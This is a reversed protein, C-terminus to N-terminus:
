SLLRAGAWDSHDYDITGPITSKVILTLTQVGVVSINVHGAASTGTVTGSDYLLAGDGFIQFDVSGNGNVEDDIGVDSIFTTYKGALSYTITSDAHTGIGKAYATGRLTIPQGKITLDKQITMYGVTASTWTLASLYTTTSNASLTTASIVNSSPSNGVSNSAILRYYYKTSASLGTDTYTTASAPPNAVFTFNTGDTSRELRLATQNVATNTWGLTISSSSIATATTITPASPVTTPAGL